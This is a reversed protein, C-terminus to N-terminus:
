KSFKKEASYFKDFHNGLNPWMFDKVRQGKGTEPDNQEWVANNISLLEETKKVIREAADMCRKSLNPNSQTFREAQKVLGEEVLFHNMIIWVPGQWDPGEKRRYHPDYHESKKPHTPLPFPTAFWEPDEIRNLLLKAKDSPLNDLLLPFLGTISKVPIQNGDKDINYFFTEQKDKRQLLQRLGQSQRIPEEHWSQRLIETKVRLAEKEYTKAELSYKTKKKQDSTLKSLERAIQATYDLNLAHMANFMVDNVAYRERVKEPLWDRREGEPDKGLEALKQNFGKFVQSKERLGPIGNMQVWVIGTNILGITKGRGPVIRRKPGLASDYDRGTENPHTNFILPDNESNQRHNLFYAAEGQLGTYNEPEATGYMEELFNKADAFKGRRQFSNYTEMVTVAKIPPQMYSSYNRDNYLTREPELYPRDGAQVGDLRFKNSLFGTKRDRYREISRLEKAAQEPKNRRANIMVAADEDWKFGWGDYHDGASPVTHLSKGDSRLNTVDMMESERKIRQDRTLPPNPRDFPPERFYSVAEKRVTNATKFIRSANEKANQIHQPIIREGAM